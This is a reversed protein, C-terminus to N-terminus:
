PCQQLIEEKRVHIMLKENEVPDNGDTNSVQQLKKKLILLGTLGSQAGRWSRRKGKSCFVKFSDM